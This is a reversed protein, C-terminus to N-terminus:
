VSPSHGWNFESPSVGTYKKFMKSFYQTSSFGLLGATETVSMHSNGIYNVARDIKAITIYTNVTINVNVKFVESLYRPSVNCSKAVDILSIKENLHSSIYTIARIALPNRISFVQRYSQEIERSLLFVMEAIYINALATHCVEDVSTVEGCIREVCSLMQGTCPQLMYASHADIMCNIFKLGAIVQPAMNVFSKPQFHIQLFRCPEKSSIRQSHINHSFIVIMEGAHVPVLDGNISIECAGEQLLMVEVNEHCHPGFSYGPELVRPLANHIMNQEKHLYLQEVPNKGM